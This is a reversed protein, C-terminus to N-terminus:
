LSILQLLFLTFWLRGFGSWDSNVHCFFLRSLDSGRTGLSFASRAKNERTNTHTHGKHTRWYIKRRFFSQLLKHEPERWKARAWHVTPDLLKGSYCRNTRVDAYENWKNRRDCFKEAPIEVLKAFNLDGTKGYSAKKASERPSFM